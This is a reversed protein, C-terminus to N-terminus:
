SNNPICMNSVAPPRCKKVEDFTRAQCKFEEKCSRKVVCSEVLAARETTLGM